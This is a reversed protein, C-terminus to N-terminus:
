LIQRLRRADGPLRIEVLGIRNNLPINVYTLIKKWLAFLSDNWFGPTYTAHELDLGNSYFKGVGSTTIVVGHPYQAEVIDLATLLAQCFSKHWDIISSM